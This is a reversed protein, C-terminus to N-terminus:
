PLDTSSEIIKINSLGAEHLRNHLESAEGAVLWKLRSAGLVHRWSEQVKTPRLGYLYTPASEPYSTPLRNIIIHAFLDAIQSCTECLSPTRAVLYSIARSFEDRSLENPAALNEIEGAIERMAQVARDERVATVILWMGGQRADMLSSRVGYTWGKRLRLNSNVRSTFIGALLTDAVILPEAYISTRPVTSLGAALVTQSTGPRNVIVISSGSELRETMGPSCLVDSQPRWQGFTRELCPQLNARECSAVVILTCQQPILHTAYYRQLEDATIAAVDKETGSGSFPCAYSHGYGYILPPLVRLALGFPNLRERAILALQKTQILEFNEREFQPHALANVWIRLADCFSPNLASVGIVAADPMVGCKPLAGVEDFASGLQGGNVRLSGESFLGMAAAALGSRGAPDAGFGGGDLILRLEAVPSKERQIFLVRLGNRLTFDHTGDFSPLGIRGVIADPKVDM